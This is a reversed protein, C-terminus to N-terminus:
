TRLSVQMGCSLSSPLEWNIYQSPNDGHIGIPEYTATGEGGADLSKWKNRDRKGLARRQREPVGRVGPTVPGGQRRAVAHNPGQAM